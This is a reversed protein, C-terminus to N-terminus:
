SQARRLFMRRYALVALAGIICGIVGSNAIRLLSVLVPTHLHSFTDIMDGIGVGIGLALLWGLARRHAPLLAPVLMLLPFGLLFEKFRPRVSLATTLGSRLSLEFASPAIDSQNGSRMLIVYGGAVIVVGLVLAGIRVPSEFAARVDRIRGGFLDTGFYLALAILPPVALVAKVGRFREIEEMVLPSSLLGVVVLAGLLAVATALVTWRLSRLLQVRSSLAPSEAFAGALVTFAAAAFILAGTLALISRALLDHHTVYGGAYLLVTLAYAAIAYERRYWGYVGLIVILMSPVALAVLGVPLVSDARFEPVPAATGPKFGRARLGAAIQKVLEVNTKEISLNNYEHAFPRLYVVRVNRERVGLLYRAVIEEFKLKDQEPKAIAQVRVTRGPVLKALEDNGKQVQSADYTEISGFTMKRGNIVEATDKLHNPFGLVQNRLGFFVVTSVHARHALADFVRAIQPGDMREDNQLRPIVFLDLKKALALQDSPIGLSTQGFYDLQTRVAIIWPAGDHLVRISAHTFHLPLQQMYRDFTARDYVLLYVEDPVIKNARVLGALTPDSVPSLRAAQLIGVGNTVYASRGTNIGAGLEEPLALTTLGARRLEVLFAEPKYNYSRALALFDGYDMAIEVRQTRHEVRIREVAIFAAALLAIFLVIAAYRTRNSVFNVSRMNAIFVLLGATPSGRTTAYATERM